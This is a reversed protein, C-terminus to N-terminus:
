KALAYSASLIVYSEYAYWMTLILVTLASPFAIIFALWIATEVTWYSIMASVKVEPKKLFNIAKKSTQKCKNVLRTRTSQINGSDINIYNDYNVHPFIDEVTLMFAPLTM